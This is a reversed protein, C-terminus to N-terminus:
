LPVRAPFTLGSIPCKRPSAVGVSTGAVVTPLGSVMVMFAFPMKCAAYAMFPFLVVAAEQFPTTIIIRASAAFSADRTMGMAQTTLGMLTSYPPLRAM